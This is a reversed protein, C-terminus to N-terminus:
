RKVIRRTERRGSAERKQKLSSQAKRLITKSERIKAKYDSIDKVWYFLKRITWRQLDKIRQTAIKDINYMLYSNCNLKKLERCRYEDSQNELEYNNNIYVFFQIKARLKNKTFGADKLLQIKGRIIAEDEM